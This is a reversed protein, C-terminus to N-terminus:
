QRAKAAAVSRREPQKHTRAVRIRVMAFEPPAHALRLAERAVATNLNALRVHAMPM